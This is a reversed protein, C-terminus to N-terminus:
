SRKLYRLYPRPIHHDKYAVIPRNANAQDGGNPLVLLLFDRDRWTRGYIARGKTCNLQCRQLVSNTHIPKLIKCYRVYNYLIKCICYKRYIHKYLTPSRQINKQSTAELLFWLLERAVVLAWATHKRSISQHGDQVALFFAGQHKTPPHPLVSM